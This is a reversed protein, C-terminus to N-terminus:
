RDIWGDMCGDMSENMWGGLWDHLFGKCAFAVQVSQCIGYQPPIWLLPFCTAIYSLLREGCYMRLNGRETDQSYSGDTLM